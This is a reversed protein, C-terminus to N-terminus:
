TRGRTVVIGRSTVRRPRVGPHRHNRGAALASIRHDIFISREDPEFFPKVREVLRAWAIWQTERRATLRSLGDRDRLFAACDIAADVGAQAKAIVSREAEPNSGLSNRHREGRLDEHLSRAVAPKSGTIRKKVENLQQQTM